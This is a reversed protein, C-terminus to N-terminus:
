LRTSQLHPRIIILVLVAQWFLLFHERVIQPFKRRKKAFILITGYNPELHTYNQM